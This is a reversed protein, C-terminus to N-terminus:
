LLGMREAREPDPFPRYLGFEAHHIKSHVARYLQNVHEDQSGSVRFARDLQELDNVAIELLFDRFPKDALNLKRRLLRFDLIVGREKLLAMWENVAHAFGLAKADDKLDISVTYINM